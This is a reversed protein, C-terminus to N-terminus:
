YFPSPVLEVDPLIAHPFVCLVGPVSCSSLLNNTQAKLSAFPTHHPKARNGELLNIFQPILLSM